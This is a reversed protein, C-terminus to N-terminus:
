LRRTHPRTSFVRFPQIISSDDVIVYIARGSRICGGCKQVPDNISVACQEKTRLGACGGLVQDIHPRCGIELSVWSIHMHAGWDGVEVMRRVKHPRMQVPWTPGCRALDPWTPGPGAQGPRANRLLLMKCEVSICDDICRRPLQV